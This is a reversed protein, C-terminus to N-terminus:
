VDVSPERPPTPASETETEREGRHYKPEGLVAELEKIGDRDGCSSSREEVKQEEKSKKPRYRRAPSCSPSSLYWESANICM